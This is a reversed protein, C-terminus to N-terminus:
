GGRRSRATLAVYAAAGALAALFGALLALVLHSDEDALGGLGTAPAGRPAAMRDTAVVAAVPEGASGVVFATSSTGATLTVAGQSAITSGDAPSRVSLAYAGPGVATYSSVDGFGVSEAVRQEGLLVDVSGLESAANVVRMRSTGGKARGDTLVLLQDRMAVVTYSGRNRVRQSAGTIQRGNTEMLEFEVDGAPVREYTGVEGFGVGRGIRQTIGGATAEVRVGDPGPIAQVFRVKGDAWASAAPGALLMLLSAILGAVWRSAAVGRLM